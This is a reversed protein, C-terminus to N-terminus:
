ILYCLARLTWEQQLMYWLNGERKFLSFFIGNYMYVVSQKDMRGGIFVHTAEVKPGNYISSSHVRTYLYRKLVGSKIRRPIYWSTSNNFWISIRNKKKIKNFYLQYCAKIKAVCCLSETICIYIYINRKMNKEM